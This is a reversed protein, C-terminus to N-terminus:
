EKHHKKPDSLPKEKSQQLIQEKQMQDLKSQLKIIDEGNNKDRWFSGIAVIVSLCAVIISSFSYRKQVKMNELLSENLRYQQLYNMGGLTLSINFETNDFWKDTDIDGNIPKIPYIKDMVNGKFYIYNLDKLEKLITAGDEGTGAKWILDKCYEPREFNKVMFTSINYTKNIGHKELESLLEITTNKKKM